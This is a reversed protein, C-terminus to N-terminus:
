SGGGRGSRRRNGAGRRGPSRRRGSVTGPREPETEDAPEFLDQILTRRTSGDAVVEVAFVLAGLSALFTAVQLLQRTVVLPPSGVGLSVLVGDQTGSWEAVLGADVTLVGVVTFTVFLLTGFAVLEAAVRVTARRADSRGLMRRLGVGVVLLAAILTALAFGVVRLVTLRGVYRWTESTIFLILLLGLLLRLERVTVLVVDSGRSM